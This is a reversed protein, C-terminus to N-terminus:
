EPLNLLPKTVTLQPTLSLGPDLFLTRFAKHSPWPTFTPKPPSPSREQVRSALASDATHKGTLRPLQWRTLVAGESPCLVLIGRFWCVWAQQIWATLVRNNVSLLFVVFCFLCVFLCMKWAPWPTVQREDRYEALLSLASKALELGAPAIYRSGAEFFGFILIFFFYIKWSQWTQFHEHYVTPLPRKLHVKIWMKIGKRKCNEM